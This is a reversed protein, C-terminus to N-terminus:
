RPPAECRRSLSAVRLTALRDDFGGDAFFGLMGAEITDGDRVVVCSPRRQLVALLEPVLERESVLIRM